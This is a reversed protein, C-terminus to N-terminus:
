RATNVVRLERTGQSSRAIITYTGAAMGRADFTAATSGDGLQRLAPSAVKRGLLDYIAISLDRDGTSGSYTIETESHFPNPTARLVPEESNLTAATVGLHMSALLWRISRAAITDATASNAVDSLNFGLFVFRGGTQPNTYRIGALHSAASDFYFIPSSNSGPSLDFPASYRAGAVTTVISNGLADSTGSLAFPFTKGTATDYHIETTRYKIGLTDVFFSLADDTAGYLHAYNATDFQAALANDSSFLVPKGADLMNEIAGVTSAPYGSYVGGLVPDNDFIALDMKEIGWSAIADTYLPILATRSLFNSPLARILSASISTVGPTYYIGYRTNDSLGLLPTGFSHSYAGDKQPTAVINLFACGSQDPATITVTADSTTGPGVTLKAPSITASWGKPLPHTTDISLGLTMDSTTSNNQFTIKDTTQANSNVTIFTGNNSFSSADVTLVPIKAQSLHTVEADFVECGQTDVASYAHVIGVLRINNPDITRDALSFTFTQSYTSGAAVSAPIVGAVGRVGAPASLFVYRHQWGQIKYPSNYFPNQPRLAGFYSDSRSYYNTQDYNSGPPGSVSDETVMLNLRLDGSMAQVFTASVKASVIHTAPDFTVNTVSVTAKAPLKILSDVLRHRSSSDTFGIGIGPLEIWSDPFQLWGPPDVAHRDIWSQPIGDSSQPFAKGKWLSDGQATAMPDLKHFCIVATQGPHKQEM